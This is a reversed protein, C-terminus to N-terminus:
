LRNFFTKQGFSRLSNLRGETASRKEETPGRFDGPRKLNNSAAVVAQAAPSAKALGLAKNHQKKAEREANVRAQEIEIDDHLQQNEESTNAWESYEWRHLFISPSTIRQKPDRLNALREKQRVTFAAFCNARKEDETDGPFDAIELRPMDEVERWVRYEKHLRKIFGDRTETGRLTRIM